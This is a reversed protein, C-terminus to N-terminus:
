CGKTKVLLGKDRNGAFKSDQNGNACSRKMFWSNSRRTLCGQSFSEIVRGLDGRWVFGAALRVGEASVVVDNDCDKSRPYCSRKCAKMWAAHGDVITWLSLELKVLCWAVCSLSLM